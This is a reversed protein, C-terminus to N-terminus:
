MEMILSELRKFGEDIKTEIKGIDVKNKNIDDKIKDINQITKDTDKEISEIRQTTSGQTFFITSGITLITLITGASIKKDIIM